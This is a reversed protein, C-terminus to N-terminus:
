ATSLASTVNEKSAMLMTPVDSNFSRTHRVQLRSRAVSIRGTSSSAPFPIGTSHANSACCTTIRTAPSANPTRIAFGARSATASSAQVSTSSAIPM